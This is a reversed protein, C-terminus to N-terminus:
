LKPSSNLILKDSQIQSHYSKTDQMKANSLFCDLIKDVNTKAIFLM